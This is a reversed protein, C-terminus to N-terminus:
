IFAPPARAPYVSRCERYYLSEERSVATFVLLSFVAFYFFTAAESLQNQVVCVICEAHNQADEHHHLPLIFGLYCSLFLSCVVSFTEM